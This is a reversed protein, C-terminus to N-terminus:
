QAKFTVAVDASVGALGAGGLIMVYIKGPQPMKDTCYYAAHIETKRYMPVGAAAPMIGELFTYMFAGTVDAAPSVTRLMAQGAPTSDLLRIAISTVKGELACSVAAFVGPSAGGGVPPIEQLTVREACRDGSVTVLNPLITGSSDKYHEKPRSTYVVSRSM